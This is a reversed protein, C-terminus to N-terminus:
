CVGPVRLPQAQVTRGALSNAAPGETSVLRKRKVRCFEGYEPAGSAKPIHETPCDSLNRQILKTLYTLGIAALPPNARYVHRGCRCRTRKFGRNNETFWRGCSCQLAFCSRKV